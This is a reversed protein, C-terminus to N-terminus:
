PSMYPNGVPLDERLLLSEKIASEYLVYTLDISRRYALSIIASSTRLDLPSFLFYFCETLQMVETVSLNSIDRKHFGTSLHRECIVAECYYLQDM